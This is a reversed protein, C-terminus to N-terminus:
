VKKINEKLQAIQVGLSVCKKGLMCQDAEDIDLHTQLHHKDKKLDVVWAGKEKNFDVDINIECAGIEPYLSTIKECLAKKDIM